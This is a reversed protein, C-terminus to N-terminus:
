SLNQRNYESSWALTKSLIEGEAYIDETNFGRWAMQDMWNDVVTEIIDKSLVKEDYMMEVEGRCETLTNLASIRIAMTKMRRM